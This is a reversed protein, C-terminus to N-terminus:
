QVNFAWSRHCSASDFCLPLKCSKSWRKRGNSQNINTRYDAYSLPRDKAMQEIYNCVSLTYAYLDTDLIGTNNDAM